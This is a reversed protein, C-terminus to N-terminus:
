KLNFRLRYQCKKCLAEVARRRSFGEYIDRARKCNIIESFSEENINGLAMTGEADLCCPVVTGDVLIAIQDRLGYCFGKDSGADCANIDPWEFSSSQNLFVGEILKIGNCPTLKEELSFPLSFVKQISELVYSNATSHNHSDINWLRLCVQLNSCRRAELVFSFIKHLYMGISEKSSNAEFSHLSINLQRLAPKIIYEHTLRDILTGNTTINVIYGYNGCLDLFNGLDPHILPEGLVHFYLHKSYGKIQNLIKEFMEIDMYGAKRLTKPCFSCSLNCINTIEIYTKKFYKVM